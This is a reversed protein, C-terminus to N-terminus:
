RICSFLNSLRIDPSDQSIKYIESKTFDEDKKIHLM